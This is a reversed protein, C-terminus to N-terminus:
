KLAEVIQNVNFKMMDVYTPANGSAATISHTYLESVVKIGTEAAIQEALKPNSGTELFIAIAGTERIHDVLRALQQASPAAGTNVSPIVTGIITFGYRDAFYGFSEHNTVILRRDEPIAAVQQKIWTDLDNLQAIYAAANQTYVDKGDPDAAILGDRINEVYKVVNLPDLWFHPDGEHHHHGGASGAFFPTTEAALGTLAITYEGPELDLLIGGNLGACGIPLTEEVEMEAGDASTVALLGGNAAIVYEGDEAVDFLVFGAYGGDAANLKLSLLEAEHEHEGFEGEHAHEEEGHLEVASAADSGAAIAEEATKDALEACVAEAKEEPSMVAEEGERAERSTLGASAEIVAREGGANELTEAAWEEFGAGNLILVSTDAIKAVDQPTPEFAHPDVGLPILSEIKVREGAVNQAIEALFTEVALVKIASQQNKIKSQEAPAANQCASLLLSLMTLLSLITIIIKKM